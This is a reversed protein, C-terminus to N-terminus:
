FDVLEKDMNYWVGNKSFDSNPDNVDDNENLKVFGLKEYFKFLHEHVIITIKRGVSQQSMKQIYDTMLLRALNQGQYDPHIVVSHIAIVDSSEKHQGIEMTNLTIFESDIKTAMIEGILQTNGDDNKVFLGQCLDPCNAIRYEVTERSCREESPFGLSELHLLEDIDKKLFPRISIKKPLKSINFQAIDEMTNINNYTIFTTVKNPPTTTAIPSLYNITKYVQTNKSLTLLFFFLILFFNVCLPHFTTSASVM